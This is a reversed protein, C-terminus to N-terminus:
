YGDDECVTTSAVLGTYHISCHLLQVRVNIWPHKLAEEATIRKNQDLTLMKDILEKAATTVSDWEPSPYQPLLSLQCSPIVSM